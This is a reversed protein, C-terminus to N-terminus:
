VAKEEINEWDKRMALQMKLDYESIEALATLLAAQIRYFSSDVPNPINSILENADHIMVVAKFVTEKMAIYSDSM